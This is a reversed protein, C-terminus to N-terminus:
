CLGAGPVSRQFGGDGRAGPVSGAGACIWGAGLGCPATVGCLSVWGRHEGRARKPLVVLLHRFSWIPSPSGWDPPCSARSGLSNNLGETSVFRRRCSFNCSVYASRMRLCRHLEHATLFLVIYPRSANGFFVGPLLSRLSLPAVSPVFLSFCCPDLHRWICDCHDCALHALAKLFLSILPIGGSM